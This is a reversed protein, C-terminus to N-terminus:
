IALLRMEVRFRGRQQDAVSSSVLVRKVTGYRLSPCGEHGLATAAPAPRPAGSAIRGLVGAVRAWTPGLTLLLVDAAIATCRAVNVDISGKEHAIRPGWGTRAM